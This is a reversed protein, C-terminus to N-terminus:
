KKKLWDIEVKQQGIQKYLEDLLQSQEKDHRKQKHSFSNKIAALAQNKWNIIQTSHVGFKSSLQSQTRDGKLAALAAKTKFEATHQKKHKISM